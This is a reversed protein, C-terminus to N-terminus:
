GGVAKVQDNAMSKWTTDIWDHIVDYSGYVHHDAHGAGEIASFQKPQGARDFLQRGMEIPILNDETGHVVLLPADIQDIRSLSDYRDLIFTQVPLYPYLRAGVDAISTYPADLIVGGVPNNAALHVAVGTGISEGYVIIDDPEIRQEVLWQYAIKADAYNNLETPKGGSGSYGRYSLMFIGRGKDLYEGIRGARSALNGANGHFYLLTPEGPRAKGYWAILDVGDATRLTLERVKELGHAKPDVRQPDPAYVLFRQQSWALLGLGGFILLSVFLKLM